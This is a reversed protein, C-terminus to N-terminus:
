NSILKSWQSLFSLRKGANVFEWMARKTTINNVRVWQSGNQCVIDVITTSTKIEVNDKRTKMQDRPFMEFYQRLSIIGPCIKAVLWLSENHIFDGEFSSQATKLQKQVKKFGNM